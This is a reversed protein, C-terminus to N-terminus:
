TGAGAPPPTFKIGDTKGKVAVNVDVNDLDYEGVIRSLRQVDHGSYSAKGTMRQRLTMDANILTAILEARDHDNGIDAARLAKTLNDPM